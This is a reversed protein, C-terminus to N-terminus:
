AIRSEKLDLRISLAERMYVDPYHNALFARELEDLQWSNFNTRNRRRKSDISEGDSDNDDVDTDDKDRLSEVEASNTM